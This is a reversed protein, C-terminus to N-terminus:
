WVPWWKKLSLRYIMLHLIVHPIFYRLGNKLLLSLSWTIAVKRFFCAYNTRLRRYYITVYQAGASLKNYISLM